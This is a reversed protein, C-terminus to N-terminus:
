EYKKLEKVDVPWLHRIHEIVDKTEEETLGVIDPGQSTIADKMIVVDGLIPEGHVNAGYWFSAIWNIEPTDERVRGEEDILLCFPQRLGWPLVHESLSWGMAEAVGMFGKFEAPYVKNETTIVVGRM